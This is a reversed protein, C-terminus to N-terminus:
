LGVSELNVLCIRSPVHKLHKLAGPDSPLARKCVLFQKAVVSIASEAAKAGTAQRFRQYQVGSWRSSNVDAAADQCGGCWDCM